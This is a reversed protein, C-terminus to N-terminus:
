AVKEKAMLNRVIRLHTKNKLWEAVDKPLSTRTTPEKTTGKPRGAGVRYGGRGKTKKEMFESLNNNLRHKIFEKLYLPYKEIVDEATDGSCEVPYLSNSFVWTKFRKDYWPTIPGVERLAIKIEKELEQKTAM